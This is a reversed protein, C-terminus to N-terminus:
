TLEQTPEAAATAARRAWKPIPQPQWAAMADLCADLSDAALLLERNKQKLLGTTVM